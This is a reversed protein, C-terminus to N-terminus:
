KQIHFINGFRRNQATKYCDGDKSLLRKIFMIRSALITNKLHQLKLGAHRIDELITLKKVHKGNPWLFDYM